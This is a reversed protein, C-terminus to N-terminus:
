RALTYEWFLPLITDGLLLFCVNSMFYMYISMYLYFIQFLCFSENWIGIFIRLPSKWGHWWSTRVLNRESTATTCCFCEMSSLWCWEWSCPWGSASLSVKLMFLFNLVEQRFSVDISLLCLLCNLIRLAMLLKTFSQIAFQDYLESYIDLQFDTM